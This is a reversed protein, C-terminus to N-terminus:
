YELQLRDQFAAVASELDPFVLLARLPLMIRAIRLVRVLRWLPRESVKLVLVVPVGPQSLVRMWASLLQWPRRTEFYATNWHPGEAGQAECGNPRPTIVQLAPDPLTRRLLAAIQQMEQRYPSLLLLRKAGAARSAFRALQLGAKWTPEWTSLALRPIPPPPVDVRYYVEVWKSEHAGVGERAARCLDPIWDSPRFQSKYRLVAALKKEFVGTVDMEERRLQAGALQMARVLKQTQGPPTAAYPLDQYMGIKRGSFFAEHDRLMLLSANRVMRHDPHGSVALPIWIEHPLLAQMQRFIAEAVASVERPEPYRPLRNGPRLSSDFEALERRQIGLFGCVDDSEARRIGMAEEISLGSKGEANYPAHNTVTHVTLITFSVESARAAIMGGVSLVADDFHPEVVVVVEKEM